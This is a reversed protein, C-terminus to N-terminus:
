VYKLTILEQTNEIYFLYRAINLDDFDESMERMSSFGIDEHYTYSEFIFGKDIGM